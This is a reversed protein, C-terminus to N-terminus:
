LWLNQFIKIYMNSIDHFITSLALADQFRVSLVDGGRGLHQQKSGDEPPQSEPGARVCFIAVINNLGNLGAGLVCTCLIHKPVMESLGSTMYSMKNFDKQDMKCDKTNEM